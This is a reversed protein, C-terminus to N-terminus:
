SLSQYRFFSLLDMVPGRVSAIPIRDVTESSTAFITFSNEYDQSCTMESSYLSVHDDPATPWM